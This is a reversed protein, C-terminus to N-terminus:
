HNYIIVNNSFNIDTPLKKLLLSTSSNAAYQGAVADCAAYQGAVADCAAYQGAVADCARSSLKKEQASSWNEGAIILIAFKIHL